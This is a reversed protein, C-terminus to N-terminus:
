FFYWGAGGGILGFFIDRVKFPTFPIPAEAARIIIHSSVHTM